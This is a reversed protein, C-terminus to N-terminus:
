PAGFGWGGAVDDLRAVLGEVDIGCAPAGGCGGFADGAFDGVDGVEEGDILEEGSLVLAGAVEDQEVVGTEAFFGGDPILDFTEGEEVAETWLGDEEGAAGIAGLVGAGKAEVALHGGHGDGLEAEFIVKEDFTEEFLPGDGDM